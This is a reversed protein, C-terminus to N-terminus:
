GSGCHCTEIVPVKKDKFTEDHSIDPVCFTPSPPRKWLCKETSRYCLPSVDPLLNAFCDVSICGNM